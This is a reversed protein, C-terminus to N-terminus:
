KHNILDQYKQYLEIPLNNNSIEKAKDEDIEIIQFDHLLQSYTLKTIVWDKKNIDYMRFFDYFDGHVFLTEKDLKALYYTLKKSENM